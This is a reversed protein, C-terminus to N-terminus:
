EDDDPTGTDAIDLIWGEEEYNMEERRVIEDLISGLFADM